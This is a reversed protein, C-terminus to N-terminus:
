RSGAASRRLTVAPLEPQSGAPVIEECNPRVSVPIADAWRSSARDVKIRVDLDYRYGQNETIWVARPLGTRRPLLKVAAWDEAELATELKV